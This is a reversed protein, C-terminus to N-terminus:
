GPLVGSVALTQVISGIAQVEPQQWHVPCGATSSLLIPLHIARRSHQLANRRGSPLGGCDCRRKQTLPQSGYSM